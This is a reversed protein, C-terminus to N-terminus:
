YGPVFILEIDVRQNIYRGKKTSNDVLYDAASAYNILIKLESVGRRKLWNRAAKARELALTEDWLSPNKTSTRGNIVIMAAYKADSLVAKQKKSPRFLASSDEFSVSLTTSEPTFTDVIEGARLSSSIIALVFIILLHKKV